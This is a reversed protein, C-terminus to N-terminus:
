SGVTTQKIPVGRFNVPKRRVLKRGLWWFGGAAVLSIGTVAWWHTAFSFHAVMQSGFAPAATQALAGGMAYLALYQGRTAPSSREVTFSQIFPIALMESFTVLLIYILAITLASFGPGDAATLVAYSASTLVVGVSILRLKSRKRQELEYVLAMEIAVVLLGNLAMLLGITRETLRLVEKFFLPVITFLQMFVMFYLSSCVVFGVFLGDRYPSTAGSEGSVDSAGTVTRDARGVATAPVPLFLWLM